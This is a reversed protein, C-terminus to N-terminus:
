WRSKLLGLLPMSIGPSEESLGPAISYKYSHKQFRDFDFVGKEYYLIVYCLIFLISFGRAEEALDPSPFVRECKAGWSRSLRSPGQPRKLMTNM